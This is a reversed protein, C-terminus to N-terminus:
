STINLNIDNKSYTDLREWIIQKNLYIKKVPKAGVRFDNVYYSM